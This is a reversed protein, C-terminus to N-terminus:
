YTGVMQVCVDCKYVYVGNACGINVWWKYVWVVNICMSGMQVGLICGGSECVQKM